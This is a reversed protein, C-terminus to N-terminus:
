IETPPVLFKNFGNRFRMWPEKPVVDIYLFGHPDSGTAERYVEEFQDRSVTNAFASYIQDLQTKDSTKFILYQTANLRITRPVGVWSQVLFCITLPVHRHKISLHNLMGRRAQTYVSSGQCHDFILIHRKPKVEGFPPNYNHKILVATEENSLRKHQSYNLFAKRYLYNENKSSDNKVREQIQVLAKEFGTTM